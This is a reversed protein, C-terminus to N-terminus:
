HYKPLQMSSLLKMPAHSPNLLSFETSVLKPM